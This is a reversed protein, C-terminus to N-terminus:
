MIPLCSQGFFKKSSENEKTNPLDHNSVIDQITQLVERIISLNKEILVEKNRFEFWGNPNINIAQGSGIICDPM